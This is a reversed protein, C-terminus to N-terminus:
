IHHEPIGVKKLNKRTLCFGRFVQHGRPLQIKSLKKLKVKFISNGCLFGHEDYSFDNAINNKDSFLVCIPSHAQFASDRFKKLKSSFNAFEKQLSSSVLYRLSQLDSLRNCWSLQAMTSLLPCLCYTFLHAHNHELLFKNVFFLCCSPKSGPDYNANLPNEKLILFYKCTLTLYPLGLSKPIIILLM